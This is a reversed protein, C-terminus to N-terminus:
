PNVDILKVMTACANSKMNLKFMFQEIDLSSSLLFELVWVDNDVPKKPNWFAVKIV